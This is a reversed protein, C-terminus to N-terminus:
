KRLPAKQTVAQEAPRLLALDVGSLQAMRSVTVFEYGLGRLHDILRGLVLHVQQSRRSRLTALHMLIIGGNIGSPQQQAADAIKKLIDGPSHYAPDDEDPVWDNSDLNERWTRGQRWGVHLYGAEQGWACITRNREGYPARWLPMIQRGTVSEFARETRGLEAFLKARSMSPLTTHTRDKAWSTLHPHNYTHNGVEHGEAVFRRVLDSRKLMFQGTLFM